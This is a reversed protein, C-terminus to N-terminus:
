ENRVCIEFLHISEIYRREHSQSAHSATPTRAKLLRPPKSRALPRPFTPEATLGERMVELRAADIAAQDKSANAIDLMKDAAFYERIVPRVVHNLHDLFKQM